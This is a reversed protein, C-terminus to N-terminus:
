PKKKRMLYFLALVCPLIVLYLWHRNTKEQPEAQLKEEGSEDNRNGTQEERERSPSSPKMGGQEAQKAEATPPHTNKNPPVDEEEDDEEYRGRFIGEPDEPSISIRVAFFAKKEFIPKIEEWYYWSLQTYRIEFTAKGQTPDVELSKVAHWGREEIDLKGMLSFRGYDIEIDLPWEVYIVMSTTGVDLLKTTLRNHLDVMTYDRAPKEEALIACALLSISALLIHRNKM